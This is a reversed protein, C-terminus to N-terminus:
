SFVATGVSVLGISANDCADMQPITIILSNDAGPPTVDMHTVQVVTCSGLVDADTITVPVTMSEGSTLVVDGGLAGSDMSMAGIKANNYYFYVIPFGAGHCTQSYANRFKLTGHFHGAENNDSPIYTIALDTANCVIPSPPPPPPNKHASPSTSSPSPTTAGSPSSTPTSVPVSSVIPPPANTALGNTSFPIASCGVLAPVTLMALIAALALPRM